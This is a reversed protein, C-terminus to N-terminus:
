QGGRPRGIGLIEELSKPQKILDYPNYIASDEGGLNKNIKRYTNLSPEIAKKREAVMGDIIKKMNNRETQTFTGGEKLRQAFL